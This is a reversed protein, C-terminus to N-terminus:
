TRLKQTFKIELYGKNPLILKFKLYGKNIINTQILM